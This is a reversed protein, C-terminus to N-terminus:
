YWWTIIQKKGINDQVKWKKNFKTKKNNQELKVPNETHKNLEKLVFDPIKCGTGKKIIELIYGAKQSLSRPAKKFYKLFERWNVKEADYIAKTLISYNLYKIKLFCDFFTKEIGSIRLDDREIYGMFLSKLPLYRLTYNELNVTKYKKETIIFITFDEYETLGYYKLASTLGIYGDHIRLALKYYNDLNKPNYYADKIARRLYGKRYLSHLIKNRKNQSFDPFIYNVLENDVIDKDEIYQWLEQEGRTLYNNKIM